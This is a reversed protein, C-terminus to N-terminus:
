STSSAAGRLEDAALEGLLVASAAPGRSIPVPLVSADVVRLGEVGHVRFGGDVVAGQHPDPGVPCSGGLHFAFGIRDRLWDDLLRDDRLEAASPGYWQEIVTALEAGRALDSVVRVADRLAARDASDALPDHRLAAGSRNPDLRGHGLPTMLTVRLSLLEDGLDRGTVVGYPLRTALVEIGGTHLAGQLFGSVGPDIVGPRPRYTLEVCPHNWVTAGLGPLDALSGAQSRLPAAAPGLGSRALLRPSGIVGASVVVQEAHVRIAGDPGDALVGRVRGREVILRDVTTSSRVLLEGGVALPRLYAEAVSVRRGDVANRPVLGFGDPPGAGNLDEVEAHGAAACASFFTDTVTSASRERTVPMPGESGHGDRGAFDLDHELREVAGAVRETSWRGDSLAAWRTVDEPRAHLFYTGNVASSGGLVVGRRLETSRAGGLQVPVGRSTAPDYAADLRGADGLEARRAEPWGIPDPGQELLVVRGGGLARWRGALACGASGAGVIVLECEIVQPTDVTSM